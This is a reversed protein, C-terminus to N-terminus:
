GKSISAPVLRVDLYPLIAWGKQLELFFDICYRWLICRQNIGLDVIYTSLSHLIWVM